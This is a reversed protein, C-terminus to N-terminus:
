SSEEHQLVRLGSAPDTPLSSRGTQACGADQWCRRPAAVCPVDGLQTLSPSLHPAGPSRPGGETPQAARAGDRGAARWSLYCLGLMGASSATNRGPLIVEAQTFTAPLPFGPAQLFMERKRVGLRSAARWPKWHGPLLVPASFLVLDLLKVAGALFLHCGCASPQYSIALCIGASALRIRQKRELGSHKNVPKTRYFQHFILPLTAHALAFLPTPLTHSFVAGASAPSGCSFSSCLFQM